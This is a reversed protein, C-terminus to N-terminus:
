LRELRERLKFGWRFMISHWTVIIKTRIDFGAFASWYWDLECFQCAWGTHLDGCCDPCLDDRVKAISKATLSKALTPKRM